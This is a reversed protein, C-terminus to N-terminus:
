KFEAIELTDFIAAAKTALKESEGQMLRAEILTTTNKTTPKLFKLNSYAGNNIRFESGDEKRITIKRPSRSIIKGKILESDYSIRGPNSEDFLIEIPEIEVKFTDDIAKKLAGITNFENKDHPLVDRDDCFFKKKTPHFAINYDRYKTSMILDCEQYYM